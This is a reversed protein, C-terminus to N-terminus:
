VLETNTLANAIAELKADILTKQSTLNTQLTVAQERTMPPLSNIVTSTSGDGLTTTSTVSIVAKGNRIVSSDTVVTSM